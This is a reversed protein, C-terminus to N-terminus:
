WNASSLGALPVVGDYTLNGDANEGIKALQTANAHSHRKSVADDVAAPTSNPGDVINAWSFILDTSEYEAVKTYTSTLVEYIYSASGVSVTSDGTADTVFVFDNANPNLEDRAGIDNVVILNNIDLVSIHQAVIAAIDAQNLTRRVVSAELGTVYFEVYTPNDVPAVMYLSNPQLTSPLITEKFIKLVSNSM